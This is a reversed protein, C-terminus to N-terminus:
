HGFLLYQERRTSGEDCNLGVFHALNVSDIVHSGDGVRCGIRRNNTASDVQEALLTHAVRHAQEKLSLPRKSINIILVRSIQGEIELM